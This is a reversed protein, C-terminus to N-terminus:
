VVYHLLYFLNEVEFTHYACLLMILFSVYRLIIIAFCANQLFLLSIILSRGLKYVLFFVKTHLMCLMRIYPTFKSLIYFHLNSVTLISTLGYPRPPLYGLGVSYFFYRIFSHQLHHIFFSVYQVGYRLPLNLSYPTCRPFM